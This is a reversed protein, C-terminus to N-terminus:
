AQLPLLLRSRSYVRNSSSTVDAATGDPSVDQLM